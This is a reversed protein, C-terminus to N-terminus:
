IVLVDCFVTATEYRDPDPLTSARGLGAAKRILPEYVREWFSAPWKFTKYYFGAHLLPSFFQNVAGVDFRLSPWRQQSRAELGDWLEVM